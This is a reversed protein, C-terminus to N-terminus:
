VRLVVGFDKKQLKSFYYFYMKCKKPIIQMCHLIQKAIRAYNNFLTAYSVLVIIVESVVNKDECLAAKWFRGM